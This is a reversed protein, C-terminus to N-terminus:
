TNYQFDFKHIISAIFRSLRNWWTRAKKIVDDESKPCTNEKIKYGQFQDIEHLIQAAIQQKLSDDIIFSPLHKLQLELLRNIVEQLKDFRKYLRRKTSLKIQDKAIKLWDQPIESSNLPGYM